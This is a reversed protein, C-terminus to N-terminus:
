NWQQERPVIYPSDGSGEIEDDTVLRVRKGGIAPVDRPVDSAILYVTGTLRLVNIQSPKESGRSTPEPLGGAVANLDHLQTPAYRKTTLSPDSHRALTM